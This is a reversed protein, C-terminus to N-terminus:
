FDLIFIIVKDSIGAIVECMENITQLVHIEVNFNLVFKSKIMFEFNEDGNKSEL